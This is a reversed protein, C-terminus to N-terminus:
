KVAEVTQKMSALGEEFKGGIVKDMNMIKCFAKGFFNTYRGSMAWTVVTQEGQPKFTFEVNSTDKMPKEFDLQILIQDSPRSDKITMSGEGVQDNGVWAFKAGVGSDPGSFTNVAKPDLKVWPSWADWKHFDNVHEFVAEPSAAITKSREIHFENPQAAIYGAFVGGTLLLVGLIKVTLPFSKGAQQPEAPPNDTM